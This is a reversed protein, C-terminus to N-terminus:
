GSFRRLVLPGTAPPRSAKSSQSDHGDRLRRRPDGATGLWAYAAYWSLVVIPLAIELDTEAATLALLATFLVATGFAFAVSVAFPGGASYIGYLLLQFLWEGDVWETRSSALGFPDTAPLARHEVM